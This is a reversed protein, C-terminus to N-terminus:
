RLLNSYITLTNNNISIKFHKRDISNNFNINKLNHWKIEEDLYIWIIKIM